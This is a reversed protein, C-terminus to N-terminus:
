VGELRETWEAWEGNDDGSLLGCVEERREVIQIAFGQELHWGVHCHLLWVGPNDTRFALVLHGRAPLLATDRKPTSLPISTPISGTYPGLGQSLILFDHGHLHIPHSIPLTSEIIILVWTEPRPILINNHPFSLDDVCSNSSQNLATRQNQNSNYMSRLTPQTWNHSFSTGHIQWHYFSNTFGMSVPLTENYYSQSPALDIPQSVIPVLNFPDEDRCSDTLNHATSNPIKISSTDEEDEYNSFRPAPSNPPPEFGSPMVWPNTQRFSSM